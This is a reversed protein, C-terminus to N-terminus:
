GAANPMTSSSRKASDWTPRWNGANRRRPFRGAEFVVVLPNGYEGRGDTFVRLVEIQM